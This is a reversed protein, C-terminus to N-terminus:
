NRLQKLVAQPDVGKEACLSYFMQEASQGKGNCMQLIQNFQPNQMCLQQFIQNPNGNAMNMIGKIQNISQMLQPPLGQNNNMGNNLPNM